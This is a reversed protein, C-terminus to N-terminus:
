GDSQPHNATSFKLDTGMMNFLSTWVRDTFRADRDSVIDLPVGFNKVVHKYFLEVAIESSCLTPAAICIGYKSFRDVVVMISAKGDVRPFGSIFDMSVSAWPHEAIPLPQLLGAEKKRETKDLQCVLCSKVYAEIDDEMKPWFYNRSLLAMMREVGPHGAYVTDHMEKLLKRRLGDGQPVIIRGGKFHLLDDEIWYRRVTGEKVQDMLKVYLTDYAASVKIKDLFDYELRTIAYVIAFVEKHSLADAVQNQKRPKHIWM